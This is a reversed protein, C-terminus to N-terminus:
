ESAGPSTAWRKASAAAQALAGETDIIYMAHINQECTDIRSLVAHTVEVPSLEQTRYANSLEVATLDHLKTTMVKNKRLEKRDKAASQTKRSGAKLHPNRAFFRLPFSEEQDSL